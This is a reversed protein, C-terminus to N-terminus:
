IKKRGYVKRKRVKPPAKMKVGSNILKYMLRLEQVHIFACPKCRKANNKTTVIEIGCDMCYGLRERKGMCKACLCLSHVKGDPKTVALAIRGPHRICVNEPIALVDGVQFYTRGEIVVTMRCVEKLERIDM